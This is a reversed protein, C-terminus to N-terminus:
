KAGYAGISTEGMPSARKRLARPAATIAESSSQTHNGQM